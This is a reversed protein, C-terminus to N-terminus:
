NSTNEWAVNEESFHQVEFKLAGLTINSMNYQYEAYMEAYLQCALYETVRM